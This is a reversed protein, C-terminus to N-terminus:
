STKLSMLINPGVSDLFQYKERSMLIAEETKGDLVEMFIWKPLLSSNQLGCIAQLIANDMGEVDVLLLDPRDGFEDVFNKLVEEISISPVYESRYTIGFRGSHRAAHSEILSSTADIGREMFFFQSFGSNSRLPTVVKNVFRDGRRFLQWLIQFDPNPDFSTGVWGKRKFYISNSLYIPHFAGIEIYTGRCPNPFIEALFKHEGCQTPDSKFLYIFNRFIGPVIPFKTRVIKRIRKQMARGAGLMKSSWDNADYNKFKMGNWEFYMDESCLASNFV